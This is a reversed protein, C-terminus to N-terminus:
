ELAAMMNALTSQGGATKNTRIRWDRYDIIIFHCLISDIV